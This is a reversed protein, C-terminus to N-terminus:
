YTLQEKWLEKIKLTKHKIQDGNGVPHLCSNTKYSLGTYNM